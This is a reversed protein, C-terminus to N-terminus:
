HDPKTAEPGYIARTMSAVITHVLLFFPVGVFTCLALMTFGIGIDRTRFGWGLKGFVDVSAVVIFLVICFLWFAIFAKAFRWNARQFRYVFRAYSGSDSQAAIKPRARVWAREVDIPSPPPEQEETM